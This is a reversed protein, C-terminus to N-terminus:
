KLYSATSGEYECQDCLYKIEEHKSKIHEKLYRTTSGEYECKDCPYKIEEHKSKFHRKLDASRTGTYECQDCPFQMGGNITRKRRKPASQLPDEGYDILEGSFKILKLLKKNNKVMNTFLRNLVSM